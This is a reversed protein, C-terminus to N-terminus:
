LSLYFPIASLNISLKRHPLQVSASSRAPLVAPTLPGKAEPCISDPEFEEQSLPTLAFFASAAALRVQRLLKLLVIGKRPMLTIVTGPYVKPLHSPLPAVIDINMAVEVLAANTLYVGTIIDSSGCVGLTTDSTSTM